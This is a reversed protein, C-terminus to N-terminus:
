PHRGYYARLRADGHRVLVAIVTARVAIYIRDLGVLCAARFALWGTSLRNDSFLAEVVGALLARLHGIRHLEGPTRM